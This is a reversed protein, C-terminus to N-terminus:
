ESVVKDTYEPHCKICAYALGHATTIPSMYEGCRICRTGIKKMSLEYEWGDIEFIYPEYTPSLLLRLNRLVEDLDVDINLTDRM